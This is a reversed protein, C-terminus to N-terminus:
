EGQKDDYKVEYNGHFKIKGNTENKANNEFLAANARRRHEVMRDRPEVVEKQFKEQSMSALVHDGFREENGNADKVPEWGDLRRLPLMSPHGSIFRYKRDPNKEQFPKMFLAGRDIVGRPGIYEIGSATSKKTPEPYKREILKKIESMYGDLKKDIMQEIQPDIEKIEEKAM